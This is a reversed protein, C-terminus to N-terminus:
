FVLKYLLFAGAAAAAYWLPSMGASVDGDPTLTVSEGNETVTTSGDANPKVDINGKRTPSGAPVAGRGGLASPAGPSLKFHAALDALLTAKDAAMQSLVASDNQAYPAYFQMRYNYAGLSFNPDSKVLAETEAVGDLILQYAAQTTNKAVLWAKLAAPYGSHSALAANRATMWAALAQGATEHAAKIQAESSM